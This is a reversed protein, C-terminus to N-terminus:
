SHKSLDGNQTSLGQLTVKTCRGDPSESVITVTSCIGLGRIADEINEDSLEDPAQVILSKVKLLRNFVQLIVKFNMFEWASKISPDSAGLFVISLDWLGHIPTRSVWSLISQTCYFIQYYLLTHNLAADIEFRISKFRSCGLNDLQGEEFNPLGRIKYPPDPLVSDSNSSERVRHICFCLERDYLVSAVENYIQWSTRWVELGHPHRRFTKPIVPQSKPILHTWIKNKCACIPRRSYRDSGYPRELSTPTASRAGLPDHGM